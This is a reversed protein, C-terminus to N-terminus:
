KERWGHYKMILTLLESLKIQDPYNHVHAIFGHKDKKKIDELLGISTTIDKHMMSIADDIISHAEAPKM